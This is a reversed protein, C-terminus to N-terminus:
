RIFENNLFEMVIKLIDFLKNNIEKINNMFEWELSSISDSIGIISLSSISCYKAVTFLTASEMEVALITDKRLEMVEEKTERYIADTTWVPGSILSIDKQKLIDKVKKLLIQSAYAYKSEQEYHYSTGEDRIAKEVLIIDGIEIHDVLSSGLGISIIIKVGWFSLNETLVATIPGGIGFKGLIGIKGSFDNFLRLDGYFGKVKTNKYNKIILDFLSDSFLLFIIVPSDLKPFIIKKKFLNEPGLISSRDYKNKYNPFSM